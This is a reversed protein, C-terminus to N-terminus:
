GGGTTGAVASPCRPRVRGMLAYVSRRSASTMGVSRPRDSSVKARALRAGPSGASSYARRVCSRGGVSSSIWTALTRSPRSRGAGTRNARQTLCSAAPSRPVDNLLRRGTVVSKARPMGLVMAKATGAATSAITTARSRPVIHARYRFRAMSSITRTAESAPAEMGPKQSAKSRMMTNATRRDITGTAPRPPMSVNMRGVIAKATPGAATRTRKVRAATSSLM